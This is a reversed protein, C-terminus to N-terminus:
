VCVDGDREHHICRYLGREDSQLFRESSGESHIQLRRAHGDRRCLVESRHRCGSSRSALCASPRNILSIHSIETSRHGEDVVRCGGSSVQINRGIWSRGQIEDLQFSGSGLLRTFPSTRISESFVAPCM